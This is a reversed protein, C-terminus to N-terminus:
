LIDAAVPTVKDYEYLQVPYLAGQGMDYQRFIDAADARLCLYNPNLVPPVSKAYKQPRLHYLAEPFRSRPLPEGRLNRANTDVIEANSFSAPREEDKLAVSFMRFAETKQYVESMWIKENM